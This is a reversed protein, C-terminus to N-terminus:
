ALEKNALEYEDRLRLVARVLHYSVYGSAAGFTCHVAMGPILMAYAIRPAQVFFVIVLITAFRGAGLFAGFFTWFIGGPVRDRRVFLPLLLDCLLGPTV